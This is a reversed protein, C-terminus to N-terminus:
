GDPRMEEFWKARKKGSNARSPTFVKKLFINWLFSLIYRVCALRNNKLNRREGLFSEIEILKEPNFTGKKRIDFIM